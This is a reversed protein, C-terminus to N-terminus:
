WPPRLALHQLAIIAKADRIDGRAVMDLAERWAVERVEIDEGEVALGGGEGIRSEADYPATYIHIRETCAGCSLYCTSVHDLTGLILGAEESAEALAVAEPARGGDITGAIIEWLWGDGDRLYAPLRFQRVLVVCQREVNYPLVGVADGREFVLRELPASLSGNRREYRHTVQDLKFFGDYLRRTALVEVRKGGWLREASM